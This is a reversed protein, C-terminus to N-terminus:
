KRSKHLLGKLYGALKEPENTGIRVLRKRGKFSIEIADFGSINYISTSLTHHIGWGHLFNNRVVKVSEIDAIKWSKRILGIGFSIRIETQDTKVVLRYFLLLPILMLPTIIWLIWSEDPPIGSWVILGGFFLIVMVFVASILWGTQRTEM